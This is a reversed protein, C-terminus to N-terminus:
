ESFQKKIKDITEKIIRKYEGLDKLYAKYLFKYLLDSEDIYQEPFYTDLLNQFYYREYADLNREDNVGDKVENYVKYMSDLIENKEYLANSYTSVITPFYLCLFDIFDKNYKM